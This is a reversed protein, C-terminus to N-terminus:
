FWYYDFCIQAVLKVVWQVLMLGLFIYLYKVVAGDKSKRIGFEAHLFFRVMFVVYVIIGFILPPYDYISKLIEGNLLARMSRTGGCGPCCLHTVRNFICPYNLQLVNIGTCFYLLVAAISIGLAVLGLEYLLKDTSGLRDTKFLSKLRNLM